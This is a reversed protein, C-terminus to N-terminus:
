SESNLRSVFIQRKLETMHGKVDDMRGENDHNLWCFWQNPEPSSFMVYTVDM